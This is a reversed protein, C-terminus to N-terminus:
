RRLRYFRFFDHEVPLVETGTREALEVSTLSEGGALAQYWGLRDGLYVAQIEQAGLVASVLRGVFEETDV